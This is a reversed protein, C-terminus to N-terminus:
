VLQNTYLSIFLNLIFKMLWLFKIFFFMLNIRIKRNKLIIFKGGKIINMKLHVTILIIKILLVVVNIKM